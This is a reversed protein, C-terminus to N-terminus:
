TSYYDKLQTSERDRHIFPQCSCGFQCRKAISHWNQKDNWALEKVLNKNVFIKYIQSKDGNKKIWDIASNLNSEKKVDVCEPLSKSKDSYTEGVNPRSKIIATPLLKAKLARVM